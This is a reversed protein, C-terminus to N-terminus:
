WDKTCILAQVMELDLRNRYPDIVRGAGTFASESAVTSVQIAMMDRAIQSLIPYKTTENKRYALIDFPNQKLLSEAMYRDLENSGSGNTGCDDYLFNELETDQNEVLSDTPSIHENANVDSRSSAPQSSAYFQYLNKLISVFEDLRIQYYDGCFKRMYFEVLKKKYRPDLFCAVALSMSSCSWYKEFKESMSVAMQRITLDASVCWKDQLEKIERFGRYFLNATPYSTGSLLETLDYFKKLCQFVKVAM